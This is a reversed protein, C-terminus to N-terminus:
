GDGNVGKVREWRQWGRGRAVVEGSDTDGQRAKTRQEVIGEGKEAKEMRSLPSEASPHRKAFPGSGLDPGHFRPGGKAKQLKGEEDCRSQVNWSHDPHRPCVGSDM